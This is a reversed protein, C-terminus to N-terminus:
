CDALPEILEPGNNRWNGVAASVPHATLLENGCPKLLEQDSGDLWRDFEDPTLIVPMRDHIGAMFENAITTLITFSLIDEGAEKDHWPSWLGAFTMPSGDAMSIHYPQKEEATRKWEYFGSAPVLCRFEKFAHRFMPTTAAKESRANFTLKAGKIPKDWRIPM